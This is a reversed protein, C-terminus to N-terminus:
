TRFLSLDMLGGCYFVGPRSAVGIPALSSVEFITCLRVVATTSAVKAEESSHKTCSTRAYFFCSRVSVWSRFSREHPLCSKSAHISRKASSFENASLAEIGLYRGDKGGRIVM